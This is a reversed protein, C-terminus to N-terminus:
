EGVRWEVVVEQDRHEDLFAALETLVDRSSAGKARTARGSLGPKPKPLAIVIDDPRPLDPQDVSGATQGDALWEFIADDAAALKPGLRTAFEDAQVERVGDGVLGADEVDGPPQAM